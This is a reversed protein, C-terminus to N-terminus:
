AVCAIDIDGARPVQCSKFIFLYRTKHHQPSFLLSLLPFYLTKENINATIIERESGGVVAKTTPVSSIRSLMEFLALQRLCLKILRTLTYTSLKALM